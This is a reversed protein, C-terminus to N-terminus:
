ASCKGPVAASDNPAGPLSGYAMAPGESPNAWVEPILRGARSCKSAAVADHWPQLQSRRGAASARWAWGDCPCARWTSPTDEGARLNLYAGM